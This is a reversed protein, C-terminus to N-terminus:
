DARDAHWLFEISVSGVQDGFADASLSMSGVEVGAMTQHVQDLTRLAATLTGRGSLTIPTTVIQDEAPTMSVGPGLGDIVLETESAIEAIQALAGNLASLPRLTRGSSIALEVRDIQARLVAERDESTRAVHEMSDLRAQLASDEARAIIRSHIGIFYGVGLVGALCTAGIAHIAPSSLRM